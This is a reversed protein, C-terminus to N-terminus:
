AKGIRKLYKARKIKKHIKKRNATDKAMKEKLKRVETPGMLKAEGLPYWVRGERKARRVSREDALEQHRLKKELVEIKTMKPSDLRASWRQHRIVGGHQKKDTWLRSYSYPLEYVTLGSKPLMTRMYQQDPRKMHMKAHHVKRAWSNLFKRVKKTNRFFMTGALPERDGAAKREYFYFAVDETIDDFLIPDRVLIADADLWVISDYKQAATMMEVIITPKRRINQKWSGTDEVEQFRVKKGFELLKAKLALAPEKYDPTYFSIFLPNNPM